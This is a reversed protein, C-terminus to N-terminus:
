EKRCPSRRRILSCIRGNRPVVTLCGNEEDTSDVAIWSAICTGPEVKLFFNDQHLAQGRAGPPKFYFMDQAALPEEGFLDSLVGLVKPHLMYSQALEDKRSPNMMRPYQKLIDGGSEEASLPRYGPILRNAHLNMFHNKIEEIETQAFLGKIVVFGMEDFQRKQEETILGGSVGEVM